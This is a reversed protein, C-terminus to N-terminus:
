TLVRPSVSSVHIGLVKIARKAQLYDCLAPLRPTVAEEPVGITATTTVAYPLTQEVNYWPCLMVTLDYM